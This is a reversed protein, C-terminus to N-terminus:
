LNFGAGINLEMFQFPILSIGGTLFLKNLKYIVGTEIEIGTYSLDTIRFKNGSVTEWNVWRSGYGLGGYLIVPKIVRYLVGGSFAYRGTYINDNFYRNASWSYGEYVYSGNFNLNTQLKVYGGFNEIKGAMVFGSIQSPHGAIGALLFTEKEYKIKEPITKNIIKYEEKDFKTIDNYSYIIISGDLTKFKIDVKPTNEIIYGKVINGNKLYIVDVLNIVQSAINNVFLILVFCLFIYNKM